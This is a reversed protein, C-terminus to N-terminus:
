YTFVDVAVGIVQAQDQSGLPLFSDVGALQGRVEGCREAACLRRPYAQAQVCEFSAFSHLLFNVFYENSQWCSCLDHVNLLKVNALHPALRGELM